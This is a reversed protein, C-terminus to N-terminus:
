AVYTAGVVKAAGVASQVVIRTSVFAGAFGTAFKGVTPLKDYASKLEDAVEALSEQPDVEEAFCLSCCLWLILLNIITIRFRLSAM